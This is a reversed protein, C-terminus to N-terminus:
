YIYLELGVQLTEIRKQEKKKETREERKMAEEKKTPQPKKTALKEGAGVV